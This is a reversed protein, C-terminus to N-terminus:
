MYHSLDSISRDFFIIVSPQSTEKSMLTAMNIFTTEMSLQLQILTTEYELLTERPGNLGPLTLFLPPLSPPLTTLNSDVIENRKSSSRNEGPFVCGNQMLITPVEPCTFVHYGHNKLAATLDKMSTSKGGCPGGTLVVTVVSKTRRQQTALSYFRRLKVFSLMIAISAIFPLHDYSM